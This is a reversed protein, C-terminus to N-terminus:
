AVPFPIRDFEHIIFAHKSFATVTTNRKLLRKKVSQNFNKYSLIRIINHKGIINLYEFVFFFFFSFFSIRVSIDRFFIIKSNLIDTLYKGFDYM